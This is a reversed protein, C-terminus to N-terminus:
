GIERFIPSFSDSLARTRSCASNIFDSSAGMMGIKLVVLAKFFRRDLGPQILEYATVYDIGPLEPYHEQM